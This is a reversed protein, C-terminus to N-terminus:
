SRLMEITMILMLTLVASSLACLMSYGLHHFTFAELLFFVLCFVVVIITAMSAFRWVGLSRASSKIDAEADRPLFLEIIYPQLFAALTMSGATVGPTNAFMDVGLGMFFGWLLAAWRPYNRPLMVIFYVCLLPTACGLIQIRNLVLVQLLLVVVFLVMRRIFDITM